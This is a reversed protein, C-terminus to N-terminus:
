CSQQWLPCVLNSALLFLWWNAKQWNLPFSSPLPFPLFPLSSLLPPLFHSLFNVPLVWLVALRLKQSCNPCAAMDPLFKVLLHQFHCLCLFTVNTRWRERSFVCMCLLSGLFGMPFYIGLCVQSIALSQM